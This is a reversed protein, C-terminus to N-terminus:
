FTSKKRLILFLSTGSVSLAVLMILLANRLANTGAKEIATSEIYGGYTVGNVEYTILSLGNETNYVRVKTETALEGVKVTKSIDSYVVVKDSETAKVTELSFTTTNNTIFLEALNETVFSEPVFGKHTVGDIVLEAYYFAYDNIRAIKTVRLPTKREVTIANEGHMLKFNYNDALVPFTYLNVVTTAYVHKEAVDAVADDVISANNKNVLLMTNAFILYFGETEAGVIYQSGTSTQTEIYELYTENANYKVSYIKTGSPVNIVKIKTLDTNEANTVLNQPTPVNETTLNDLEVTQLVYGENDYVFLASKSDFAMAFSVAKTANFRESTLHTPLKIEKIESQVVDDIVSEIKNGDTLSFVNGSLDTQIKLSSNSLTYSKVIVPSGANIKLKSVTKGNEVYVYVNKDNDTSILATREINTFNLNHRVFKLETTSASDVIFLVGKYEQTISYSLVYFQDNSFSVDCLYGPDAFAVTYDYFLNTKLDYLLIGGSFVVCIKNNGVGIKLPANTQTFASIDIKTSKKTVNSSVIISKAQLIYATKNAYTIDIAKEVRNNSPQTTAIAFGTFVLTEATVSFEQVTNKASDVVLLSNQDLCLGKPVVVQGLGVYSANSVSNLIYKYTKTAMDIKGVGNNTTYFISENNATLYNPTGIDIELTPNTTLYVANNKCLKGTADFYFIDNNDNIGILKISDSVTIKISSETLDIGNETVTLNYIKLNNNDLSIFYNDNFDFYQCNEDHIKNYSGDTLNLLYPRSEQQTIIFDGLLKIQTNNNLGIDTGKYVTYEGDKYVVISQTSGDNELVAYRGNDYTVDVPSSLKFYELNSYPLYISTQAVDAAKAKQPIFICALVIACIFIASLVALWIRKQKKDIYYM